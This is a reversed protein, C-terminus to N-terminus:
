RKTNLRYCRNKLVSFQLLESEIQSPLFNKKLWQEIFPICDLVLTDLCTAISRSGSYRKNLYEIKSIKEATYKTYISKYYPGDTISLLVINEDTANRAENLFNCVDEFQNDQSGGSGVTHKHTAYFFLEQDNFLYSWTFDISKNLKQNKTDLGSLIVGNSIYLASDGHNVLEKFNSVFPVNRQIWNAAYHQHFTQKGPDECFLYIFGLNDLNNIIFNKNIGWKKSFSEIKIDLKKEYTKFWKQFSKEDLTVVHFKVCLSVYMKYNPHFKLKIFILLNLLNRKREEIIAENYDIKDPTYFECDTLLM